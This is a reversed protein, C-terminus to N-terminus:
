KFSQLIWDVTEKLGTELSTKPQWGLENKARSIDFVFHKVEGERATKQVKSGKGLINKLTEFLELVSTKKGSGINFSTSSTKKMSAIIAEALDRVYVFDRTQTGDGFITCPKGDSINKIFISIVGAEGEPDQRPGYVNAPTIISYEMGHQKKFVPLFHEPAHKTIGYPSLPECPHDENIKKTKAEGFKAASSIYIFKKVGAKACAHMVNVSGTINVDAYLVPDRVSEMVSILAAMHICCDPREKEIFKSINKSRIDINHFKVKPNKNQRANGIVIVNYGKKVLIDVVHSGIFGAGGTVIVKKM